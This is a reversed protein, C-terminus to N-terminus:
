PYTRKWSFIDQAPQGKWKLYFAKAKAFASLDDWHDAANSDTFIRRLHADGFGTRLAMGSRDPALFKYEKKLGAKILAGWQDAARNFRVFDATSDTKTAYAQERLRLIEKRTAEKFRKSVKM